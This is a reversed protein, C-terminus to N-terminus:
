LKAIMICGNDICGALMHFEKVGGVTHLNEKAGCPGLSTGSISPNQKLKWM